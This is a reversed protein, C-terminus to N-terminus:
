FEPKLYKWELQDGIKLEYQDAAVSGSEGNVFYIWSKDSGSEMNRISKVFVGFDYNEYEYPIGREKLAQMLISYANEGEFNMGEFVLVDDDAFEIKLLSQAPTKVVESGLVEEDIEYEQPKPYVTWVLIIFAVLLGIISLTKRM